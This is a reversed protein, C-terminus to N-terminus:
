RWGPELFMVSFGEGSATAGATVSHWIQVNDELFYPIQSTPYSRFFM